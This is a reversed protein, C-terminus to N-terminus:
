NAEIIREAVFPRANRQTHEALADLLLERQDDSLDPM